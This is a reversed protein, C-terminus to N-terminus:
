CRTTVGCTHCWTGQGSVALTLGAAVVLVVGASIHQLLEGCLEWYGTTRCGSSGRLVALL